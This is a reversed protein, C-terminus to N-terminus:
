DNAAEKAANLIALKAARRADRDAIERNARLLAALVDEGFGTNATEIQLGAQVGAPVDCLDLIPAVPGATRTRSAELSQSEVRAPVADAIRAVMGDLDAAAGYGAAFDEFDLTMSSSKVHEWYASRLWDGPARTSYFLVLDAEPWVAAVAAAMEGALVPAASYDALEGRGPLHGSLEESSLCLVRRPMGSFGHLLTEFRHRFKMLTVPDRWTSYGRAAHVVDVMPARLVSRLYPKLAARNRRLSRQVTSTGTKHFGAHLVIRRPM